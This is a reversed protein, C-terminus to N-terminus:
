SLDWLFTLFKLACFTPFCYFKLTIVISVCGIAFKDHLDIIISLSLSLSVVFEHFMM